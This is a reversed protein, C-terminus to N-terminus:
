SQAPLYLEEVCTMSMYQGIVDKDETWRRVMDLMATSILSRRDNVPWRRRFKLTQGWDGVPTSMAISVEGEASECGCALAIASQTKERAATAMALAAALANKDALEPQQCSSMVWGQQLIGQFIDSESLWSTLNGATFQEAVSLTVNHKGLKAAVAERMPQDRSVLNDGLVGVIDGIKKEDDSLSSPSFLKVEIFPLSSRYGMESDPSLAVGSLSDNLNAESLGFTYFRDCVFAPNDPFASRIRPLVQEEVMKTFESPVGPTFFLWCENLHCAFGCATGIPNDLLEAGEPLMAQKINSKPMERGSKSFMQELVDVWSRNLVLEVGMAMSAAEATLDDTTPGLGGNVIVVDSKLSAQLLESCIDDKSDGVTTRRHLRFGQQFFLRSLWAANTDTIDGHLVEEGTSIM